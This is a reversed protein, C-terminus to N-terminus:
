DSTHPGAHGLSFLDISFCAFLCNKNNSDAVKESRENKKEITIIEKKTWQYDDDEPNSMKRLM